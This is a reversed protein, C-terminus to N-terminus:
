KWQFQNTARLHNYLCLSSLAKADATATCLESLPIIRLTISEGHEILGTLKGQMASLKDADISERFAFLRIFEDCGGPSPFVGPWRDGYALETLDVLRDADISIGVEEDLEQAAVGAFHGSGDLMGAPIEANQFSGIPLRPQVTLVTYETGDCELVVLIAVSGGRLLGIGPVQKGLENTVGASMKVFGVRPGFFDVSQVLVSDVTFRKRALEDSNMNARWQEFQSSEVARQVTSLPMGAVGTVPVSKGHIEVRVQNDSEDDAM